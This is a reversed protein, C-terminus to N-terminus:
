GTLEGRVVKGPVAGGRGPILRTVGWPVLFETDRGLIGSLRDCAGWAAQEDESRSYFAVAIIAGDARRVVPLVDDFYSIRAAADLFRYVRDRPEDGIYGTIHMRRATM